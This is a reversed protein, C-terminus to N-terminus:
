RLNVDNDEIRFEIDFKDRRHIEEVLEYTDENKIRLAALKGAQRKNCKKTLKINHDIKIM